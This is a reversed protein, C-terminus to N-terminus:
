QQDKVKYTVHTQMPAQEQVIFIEPPSIKTPNHPYWQRITARVNELVVRPILVEGAAGNWIICDAELFDRVPIDKGIILKIQPCDVYKIRM